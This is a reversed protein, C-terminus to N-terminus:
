LMSVTVIDKSSLKPLKFRLYLYASTLADYQPSSRVPANNSTMINTANDLVENETIYGAPFLLMGNKALHEDMKTNM